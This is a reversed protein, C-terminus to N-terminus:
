MKREHKNNKEVFNVFLQSLKENDMEANLMSNNMENELLYLEQKEVDVTIPIRRMYEYFWECGYGDNFLSFFPNNYYKQCKKIMGSTSIQNEAIKTFNNWENQYLESSLGLTAIKYAVRCKTILSNLEIVRKTKNDIIQLVNLYDGPLCVATYNKNLIEIDSMTLKENIYMVEFDTGKDLYDLDSLIVYGKSKMFQKVTIMIIRRQSVSKDNGIYLKIANNSSHAKNFSNELINWYNEDVNKSYFYEYLQENYPVTRNEEKDFISGDDLLQYKIDNNMSVINEVVFDTKSNKYLQPVYTKYNKMLFYIIRNKLTVNDDFLELLSKIEKKMDDSDKNKIWPIILNAILLELCEYFIDTKLSRCIDNEIKLDANYNSNVNTHKMHSSVYNALTLKKNIIEFLGSCYNNMGRNLLDSHNFYSSAMVDRGFLYMLLQVIDLEVMNDNDVINM